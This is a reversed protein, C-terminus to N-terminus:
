HVVALGDIIVQQSGVSRVIVTGSRTVSQLPLWKTQRVKATSSYLSVRGVKVGAHFVDVSGCNACTTAVLVLRRGVVNAQTLQASPRVTRSYTSFLYGSLSARTWGTSATLARDDLPMYTCREASWAGVNGARDRSRVSFCYQYGQKLTLPLARTPLNQWTAPYVYGSLNTSPSATRARVDHSALGAGGLDGASWTLTMTPVTQVVEPAIVATTPVTTDVIWTKTVVASQKGSADTVQASLSHTGATLRTLALTAGCSTWAGSDLRCQRRLSGIPDDADAAGITATASGTTSAPLTISATPAYRDAVSWTLDFWSRSATSLQRLGSGDAAATWLTGQWDDIYRGFVMRTGTQDLTVHRNDGTPLALRRAGSGDLNMVTTTRNTHTTSKDDRSGVIVLGQTSITFDDLWDTGPIPTIRGDALAVRELRGFGELSHVVVETTGPTATVQWASRLDAVKRLGSGDAGVVWLTRKELIAGRLFAIRGDPLWVAEAPTDLNTTGTTGPVTVCQETAVPCVSVDGRNGTVWRTRSPDLNVRELTLPRPLPAATENALAVSFGSSDNSIIESTVAPVDIAVEPSEAYRSDAAVIALRRAGPGPVIVSKASPGATAVLTRTAGTIDYIRYGSLPTTASPTWTLTASLRAPAVTVATPPQVPRYGELYLPVVLTEPADGGLLLYEEGMFVKATASVSITCTEGTKLVLGTCTNSAPIVTFNPSWSNGSSTGAKGVTWPKAGSNSVTVEHTVVTGVLAGSSIRAPQARPIALIRSADSDAIRVQAEAYYGGGSMYCTGTVDASLAAVQGAATAAARHVTLTGATFTCESTGRTLRVLQEPEPQDLGLSWAGPRAPWAMTVTGSAGVGQDAVTVTVTRAAADVQTTPTGAVPGAPYRKYGAAQATPAVRDGIVAVDGTAAVAAVAAPAATAPAATAPGAVVTGGLWGVSVIVMSSIARMGRM